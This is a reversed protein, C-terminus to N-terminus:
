TSFTKNIKKKRENRFLSGNRVKAEVGKSVYNALCLNADSLPRWTNLQLTTLSISQNSNTTYILELSGLVDVPVAAVGAFHYEFEICVSSLSPAPTKDVTIPLTVEASSALQYTKGSSEPCKNPAVTTPPPPPAKTTAAAAADCTLHVLFVSSFIFFVSILLLKQSPLRNLGMTLLARIM